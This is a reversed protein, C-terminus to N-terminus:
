TSPYQQEFRQKISAAIENETTFNAIADQFVLNATTLVSRDLRSFAQAM